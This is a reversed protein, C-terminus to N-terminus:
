PTPQFKSADVPITVESVVGDTVTVVHKSSFVRGVSRPMFVTAQVEYSGSTLGTALFHGRTDVTPSVMNSTEGAKVISVFVRGDPLLTGNEIKVTGRITATGQTAFVRLGTVQEGNHVEIGNPQVVGDREIRLVVINRHGGSDDAEGLVLNVTGAPLGTVHFSGDAKVVSYRGPGGQPSEDRIFASVFLPSFKQQGGSKPSGEIVVIGDLSAGLSTKIMLGTVDQDLVDFAVPESRLNERQQAVSVTYKGPPLDEARFEGKTNTGQIGSSTHSTSTGEVTIKTLYLRVNGVPEGSKGDVVRGSVSVGKAMRVVTLDINTAESAETAEVVTAQARDTTGPYFTRRYTPRGRGGLFGDDGPGASVRYKGPPVGFARFIGRDDTQVGDAGVSHPTSQDDMELHVFEEVVPRGEADTVKGTIVGGRVLAFDFGEVTEGEAILLDKGTTGTRSYDSFVFAPAIPAVQYAGAPVNTIRYKGDEDTTGKLKPRTQNSEGTRLGVVIGPMGKGKMTVRGSVTGSEIKNAPKIQSRAPVFLLGSIILASAFVSSTLHRM